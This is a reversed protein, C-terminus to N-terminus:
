PANGTQNINDIGSLLWAKMQALGDESVDFEQQALITSLSRMLPGAWLCATMVGNSVDVAFRAKEVSGSWPNEHKWHSLSPLYLEKEM